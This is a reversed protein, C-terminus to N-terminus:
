REVSMKLSTVDLTCRHLRVHYTCGKDTTLVYVVTYGATLKQMGGWSTPLFIVSRDQVALLFKKEGRLHFM